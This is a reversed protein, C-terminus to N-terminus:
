DKPQVLRVAYPTGDHGVVFDATVRHRLMKETVPAGVLRLDEGPMELRVVRLEDDAPLMASAPLAVFAEPAASSNRGSTKGPSLRRTVKSVLRDPRAAQVNPAPSAEQPPIALVVAPEAKPPSQTKRTLLWFALGAFCLCVIGLRMRMLTKRRHHHRRFANKLVPGLEPSAGQSSSEALERLAASLREELSNTKHTM